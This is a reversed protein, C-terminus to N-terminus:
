CSSPEAALEAPVSSHQSAGEKRAGKALADSRLLELLGHLRQLTAFHATATPQQSQSSLSPQPYQPPPQPPAPPHPPLQAADPLQAALETIVPRLVHLVFAQAQEM